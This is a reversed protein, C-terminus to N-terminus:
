KFTYTLGVLGLPQTRREIFPSDAADGLLHTIGAFAVISTRDTIRYSGALRFSVDKFGSGPRYPSFGSAATETQDVGFYSVMYDEDTWTAGISPVITLRKTISIPRALSANLLLGRETETIAKTAALTAATGKFRVSAFVRAGLADKVEDLGRPAEDDDYGQMWNLAVGARFTKAEIVDLGIGEGSRAFFRGFQADVLPAPEGQYGDSGQFHPRAAIGAGLTWHKSDKADPPTTVRGIEDPPEAEIGAGANALGPTACAVAVLTLWTECVLSRRRAPVITM